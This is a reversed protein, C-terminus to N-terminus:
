LCKPFKWLVSNLKLFMISVETLQNHFKDDKIWVSITNPHINFKSAAEKIRHETLFNIVENKFEKDYKCSKKSQKDGANYGMKDSDSFYKGFDDILEKMFNKMCANDPDTHKMQDCVDVADMSKDFSDSFNFFESPSNIMDISGILKDTELSFSELTESLCM